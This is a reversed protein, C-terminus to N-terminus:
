RIGRDQLTQALSYTLVLVAGKTAAYDIRTENGRLEDISSTNIIV